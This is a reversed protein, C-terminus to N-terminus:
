RNKSQVLVLTSCKLTSIDFFAVFIHTKKKKGNDSLGESAPTLLTQKQLSSSFALSYDTSFLLFWLHAKEASYVKFSGGLRKESLKM